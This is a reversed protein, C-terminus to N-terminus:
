STRSVFPNGTIYFRRLEHVDRRIGIRTGTTIERDSLVPKKVLQLPKYALYHGNLGLDIDLAQCLKGPGNTLNLGTAVRRAEMFDIGTIPEVARILVAEGAGEPGCVVNMCHHMGYTFYVYVHGASEFMNANRKTQGRFTHSAQDTQDYAETEVIRVRMETTGVTRVLECGLLQKAAVEPAVDLWNFRNTVDM